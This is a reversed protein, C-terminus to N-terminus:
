KANLAMEKIKKRKVASYIIAIVLSIAQYAILRQYINIDTFTSLGVSQQIHLSDTILSFAAHDFICMWVSGSSNRILGLKLAVIMEYILMFVALRIIRELGYVSYNFLAVRAVPVMFWVTYLIAQFFNATSFKYIKATLSLIVGRFSMEYFVAHIVSVFVGAAMWGIYASLGVESYARSVNDYYVTFNTSESGNRLLLYEASYVLVMPIANLVIAMLFGKTVKRPMFLLGVEDLAKNIFRLYVLLLFFGGACTLLGMTDVANAIAFEEVLRLIFLLFFLQFARRSYKKKVSDM